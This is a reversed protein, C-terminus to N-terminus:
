CRFLPLPLLPLMLRFLTFLSSISLYMYMYVCATLATPSHIHTVLSVLKGVALLAAFIVFILHSRWESEYFRTYNEYAGM